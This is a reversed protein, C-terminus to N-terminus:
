YSHSLYTLGFLLLKTSPWKVEVCPASDEVDFLFAFNKLRRFTFQKAMRPAVENVVRRAHSLTSVTNTTGPHSVQSFRAAASTRLASRIAWHATPNEGRPANQM